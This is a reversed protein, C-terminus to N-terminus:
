FTITAMVAPAGSDTVGPLVAYSGGSRGYNHVVLRSAGPAVVADVLNYIYLAAAAGICINRATAFHDRKTRYSKILNANHTSRIKKVYDARQNETFIIGGALVATGGLILGGKLTSGKYFQGWGPIIMSRWLGRAGYRNTLTVNDFLPARDLESKAYLKTVYYEGAGDRTWYEAVDEVYLKQESGKASTSTHITNDVRESLRGNVWTQNVTQNSKTDSMVVVGNKLGSGSILDSLCMQRAEALSSARATHTEYRFTNNTPTPPNNIWRPRPSESRTQAPLAPATVAVAALATAFSILFNRM